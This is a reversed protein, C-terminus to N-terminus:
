KGAAKKIKLKLDSLDSSSYYKGDFVVGSIEQTRSIDTLPDGDIIVLDAIKGASVSGLEAENGFFTAPNITAAQLAELPTLGANVLLEMEEHLSYGPLVYSVYVDTGTLFKVGAAKMKRTWEMRLRFSKKVAAYDENKIESQLMDLLPEYIKDIWYDPIYQLSPNRRDVERDYPSARKKLWVHTPCHWTQNRVYNQIIEDTKEESYYEGHAFPYIASSFIGTIHEISKLGANSAQIADMHWPVHGVVDLGKERGVELVGELGEPTIWSQVKLFDVGEKAFQLAVERAEKKTALKVVGEFVAEPGDLMWSTGKIRPGIMEGAQIQKRWEKLAGWDGGLDRIGTVGNVLFLPLMIDTHNHVPDIYSRQAVHTHMDWLGPILYKGTADVQMNGPSLSEKGHSSVAHIRNGKITVDQSLLIDGTIVDVVNINEFVVDTAALLTGQFTFYSAIVVFGAM